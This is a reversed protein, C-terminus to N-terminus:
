SASPPYTAEPPPLEFDATRKYIEIGTGLKKETDMQAFTDVPTSGSMAVGIGHKELDAIAQDYDGVDCAVHHLGGGKQELFEKYVSPGDLPQILEWQINGVQTLALRMTYPSPKGRLTTNSVFPPEFTYINWPGIGFINWYREMAEQLDKVVVGIQLVQKIKVKKAGTM